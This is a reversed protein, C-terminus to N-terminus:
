NTPAVECVLGLADFSLSCWDFQLHLTAVFEVRERKRWKLTEQIRFRSESTSVISLNRKISSVLIRSVCVLASQVKIKDLGVCVSAPLYTTKPAKERVKVNVIILRFM